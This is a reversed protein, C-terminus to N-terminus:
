PKGAKNYLIRVNYNDAKIINPIFEIDNTTMNILYQLYNDATTGSIDAGSTSLASGWATWDNSITTGTSAVRDVMVQDFFAWKDAGPLVACKLTIVPTATSVALTAYTNEWASTNTTYARSTFYGDDIEIYEKEM